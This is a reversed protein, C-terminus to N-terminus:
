GHRYAASGECEKKHGGGVLVAANEISPEKFVAEGIKNPLLLLQRRVRRADPHAIDSRYIEKFV